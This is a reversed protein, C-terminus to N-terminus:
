HRNSNKSSTRINHAAAASSPHRKPWWQRRRVLGLEILCLTSLFINIEVNIWLILCFGEVAAESHVHALGGAGRAANYWRIWGAPPALLEMVMTTTNAPQKHQQPHVRSTVLKMTHLIHHLFLRLILNIANSKSGGMRAGYRMSPILLIQLTWWRGFIYVSM